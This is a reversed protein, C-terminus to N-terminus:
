AKRANTTVNRLRYSKNKMINTYVQIYKKYASIFHWNKGPFNQYTRDKNRKSGNLIKNAILIDAKNAFHWVEM